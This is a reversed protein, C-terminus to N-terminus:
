ALSFLALIVAICDEVSLAFSISRSKDMCYLRALCAAIVCSIVSTIAPAFACFLFHYRHIFTLNYLDHPRNYINHKFVTLKWTDFIRQDHIIVPFFAHHLYGLVNSIIRNTADHKGCTLSKTTVHFHGSCSGSDLNWDSILCESAEKIDQAIRNVVSFRQFPLLM